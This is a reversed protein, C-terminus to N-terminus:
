VMHGEHLTRYLTSGFYLWVLRDVDHMPEEGQKRQSIQDAVRSPLPVNHRELHIVFSYVLMNYIVWFFFSGNPRPNIYIFCEDEMRRQKFVVKFFLEWM